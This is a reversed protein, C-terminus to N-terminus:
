LTNTTTFWWPITVTAVPRGNDLNTIQGRKAGRNPGEASGIRIVTGDTAVITLGTGFRALLAMLGANMANTGDGAVGFWRIVYIGTILARGNDPTVTLLTNTLPVFDEESYPDSAPPDFPVNEYERRAPLAPKARARLALHVSDLDATAPV